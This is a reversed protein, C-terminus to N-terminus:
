RRPVRCGKRSSAFYRGSGASHGFSAVDRYGRSYVSGVSRRIAQTGYLRKHAPVGIWQRSRGVSLTVGIMLLAGRSEMIRKSRLLWAEVQQDLPAVTVSNQAVFAM